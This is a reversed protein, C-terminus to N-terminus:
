AEEEPDPLDAIEGFHECGLVMGDSVRYVFAVQCQRTDAVSM